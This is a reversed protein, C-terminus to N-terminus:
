ARANLIYQNVMNELMEQRGSIRPPEGKKAAYDALEKLNTKGTMVKRGIGGRYGAYRNRIFGSLCGDDIMAQAIVLARAFTDMGGVHAHFLDVTDFSSRRVKADFNLGGHKLGGQELVIKMAWVADYIDTPFQDTDWGVTMDGRNVDISGLRGADSAVQLEHAFTHTALTAHNAEVNIEFYDLLDFERLFGLVTASDFDYQHTSPEKPKPEIGVLNGFAHM